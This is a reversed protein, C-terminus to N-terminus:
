EVTAVQTTCINNAWEDPNYKDATFGNLQNM